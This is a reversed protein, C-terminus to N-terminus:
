VLAGKVGDSHRVLAACRRTGVRGPCLEEQRNRVYKRARQSDKSIRQSDKSAQKVTNHVTEAGRLTNERLNVQPKRAKPSISSRWDTKPLTRWDNEADSQTKRAEEAKMIIINRRCNIEEAIKMESGNRIKTRKKM